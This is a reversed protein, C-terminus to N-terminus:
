WTRRPESLAVLFMPASPPPAASAAPWSAKQAEVVHTTVTTYSWDPWPLSRHYWPDDTTGPDDCLLGATAVESDSLM